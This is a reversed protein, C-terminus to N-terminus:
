ALKAKSEAPVDTSARIPGALHLAVGVPLVCRSQYSSKTVFRQAAQQFTGSGWPKCRVPQRAGAAICASSLGRWSVPWVCCLSSEASLQAGRM